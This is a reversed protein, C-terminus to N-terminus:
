AARHPRGPQVRRPRLLAERHYEKKLTQKAPMLPATGCFTARFASTSRRFLAPQGAAHRLGDEERDRDM